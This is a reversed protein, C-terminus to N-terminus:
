IVEGRELTDLSWRSRPELQVHQMWQVREQRLRRAEQQTHIRLHVSDAQQLIAEEIRILDEGDFDHTEPQKRPLLIIPLIIQNRSHDLQMFFSVDEVSNVASLASISYISSSASSSQSMTHSLQSNLSNASKAPAISSQQHHFHLVVRFEQQVNDPTQIKFNRKSTEM